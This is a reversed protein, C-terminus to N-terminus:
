DFFRNLKLQSRLKNFYYTKFRGLAIDFLIYCCFLGVGFIVDWYWMDGALFVYRFLLMLSLSSLAMFIYKILSGFLKGAKEFIPKLVPYIAFIAYETAIQINGLLFFAIIATVAYVLLSSYKIEAHVVFIIIATIVVSTLDLVQSAGGLLLAVVSLASM